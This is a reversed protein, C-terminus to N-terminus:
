RRHGGGRGGSPPPANVGGGRGGSPAPANVGGGTGGRIVPGSSRGSPGGSSPVQQRGSGPNERPVFGGSRNFNNSRNEGRQRGQYDRNLSPAPATPPRTVVGPRSGSRPANTQPITQSWGNRTRQQWGNPSRRYVNGNPGSFVNNSDPRSPRFPRLQRPQTQISNRYANERRGFLNFDRARFPRNFRSPRGHHFDVDWDRFGGPGWWRNWHNGWGFGFNFWDSGFGLGFAWNGSWLVFSAGFGWTCPRPYYRTRWWGPYYWGTGWVVTPGFVYCGVYGSTYGVYVVDPTYNYIYVYKTNYCPNSAPLYQIEQPIYTAVSWPGYASPAIYWVGQYCCYYRGGVFLVQYGTNVAYSMNTNSVPQFNPDGDYTVKPGPASRSIEATQPIQADALADEAEATGAVSALVSAKASNEPIRSFASPLSNSPTYEWPGNLSASRFWRGSLLTYIDGTAPVLFVDRSTNTMYELEQDVILTYQPDGDSSILEAPETVVIVRPPTGSSAAGTQQGLTQSETKRFESLVESTPTVGPSWNSSLVDSSAYWTGAGYLYYNSSASDLVLFFPTNVVRMLSSGQIKQLRPQGDLTVLVARYNVYIIEPPVTSITEPPDDYGHVAQLGSTLRDLSMELYLSPFIKRVSNGLRKGQRKSSHPFSTRTVQIHSFAVTRSTEDTHIRASFWITGYVPRKSGKPIIYLAARSRLLIKKLHEPQPQYLTMEGTTVKYHRPWDMPKKAASSAPMANWLTPLAILLALLFKATKNSSM